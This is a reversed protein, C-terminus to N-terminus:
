SGLTGLCRGPAADAAADAPKCRLRPFAPNIAHLIRDYAGV